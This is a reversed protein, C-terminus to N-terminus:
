PKGAPNVFQSRPLNLINKTQPWSLREAHGDVFLYNAGGLHRKVAVSLFFPATAYAAGPPSEYPDFFHFHDTTTGDSIEAMMMTDSPNPVATYRTYEPRSGVPDAPLLFDNVAYSSVRMTNTDLPCFHLNTGALDPQLTAIWSLGEHSSLPLSDENDNAYMVSAIGIQKLNNLCKIAVARQKAKALAPLLLSALIAIIAIVVLLEILTFARKMFLGRRSARPGAAISLVQFGNGGDRFPRSVDAAHPRIV